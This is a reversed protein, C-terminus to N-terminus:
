LYGCILTIKCASQSNKFAISSANATSTKANLYYTTKSSVIIDAFMTANWGWGSVANVFVKDTFRADSESNNATSLTVFMDLWGSTVVIEGLVKYKAIWLGIPVSILISGLNYWTTATPTAQTRDSTDTTTVTWKSSDLPFGAPAKVMSYYPNTIAGAALTYDTGGYLTLTTNPAGYTSQVVIFYKTSGGHTLKIRMGAMIVASYDGSCTVTYVPADAASYTLAPAPVWGSTESPDTDAAHKKTIADAVNAHTLAGDKILKGTTGDFEVINASVASGPGVVDGTATSYYVEVWYTTNPPVHNLNGGVISVYAKGGYTCGDGAAYTTAGSWAGKWSVSGLPTGAPIIPTWYTSNPPQNGGASTHALICEYVINGSTYWDGKYISIGSQWGGKIHDHKSADTTLVFKHQM